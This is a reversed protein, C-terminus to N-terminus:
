VPSSFFVVLVEQRLLEGMSLFMRLIPVGACIHRTFIFHLLSLVSYGGDVFISLPVLLIKLHVTFTNRPSFYNGGYLSLVRLLHLHLLFLLFLFFLCVFCVFYQQLFYNPIFYIYRSVRKHNLQLIDHDPHWVVSCSWICVTTHM